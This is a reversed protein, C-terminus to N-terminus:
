PLREQAWGALWGGRGRGENDPVPSARGRAVAAPPREAPPMRPRGRSGPWHDGQKAGVWAVGDGGGQKAGGGGKPGRVGGRGSVWRKNVENRLSFSSAADNVLAGLLRVHFTPGLKLVAPPPAVPTGLLPALRRRGRRAPASPGFSPPVTPPPEIPRPASSIPRMCARRLAAPSIGSEGERRVPGAASLAGSGRGIEVAAHVAIIDDSLLAWDRNTLLAQPACCLACTHMWTGTGRNHTPPRPGRLSM